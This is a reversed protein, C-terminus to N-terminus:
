YVVCVDTLLEGTIFPDITNLNWVHTVVAFVVLIFLLFCHQFKHNYFFIKSSKQKPLSILLEIEWRFNPIPSDGAMEELDGGM